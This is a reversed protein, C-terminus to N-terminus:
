RGTFPNLLAYHCRNKKNTHYVWKFGDEVREIDEPIHGLYGGQKGVTKGGAVIAFAGTKTDQLWKAGWREGNAFVVGSVSYLHCQANEHLCYLVAQVDQVHVKVTAQIRYPELYTVDFEVYEAVTTEKKRNAESYVEVPFWDMAKYVAPLNDWEEANCVPYYGRHGKLAEKPLMGEYISAM